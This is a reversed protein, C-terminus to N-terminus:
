DDFTWGYKEALAQLKKEHIKRQLPAMKTVDACLLQNELDQEKLDAMRSLSQARSEEINKAASIAENHDSEISKSKGKRQAALQKKAAQQGIPRPDDVEHFAEVDDGSATYDGSESIKNRKSSDTESGKKRKSKLEDRFKDTECVISWVHDYQFKTNYLSQYLARAESLKLAENFGSRKAYKAYCGAFKGPANNIAWWHQKCPNVERETQNTQRNENFFACIKGWYADARQSNGNVEDKTTNSWAMGLLTEDEITWNVGKKERPQSVKRRTVTRAATRTTTTVDIDEGEEIGVNDVFPNGSNSGISIPTIPPQDMNDSTQLFQTFTQVQANGM